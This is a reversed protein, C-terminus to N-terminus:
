LWNTDKDLQNDFTKLLKSVCSAKAFMKKTKLSHELHALLRLIVTSNSCPQFFENKGTINNQSLFRTIEQRPFVAGENSPNIYFSINQSSGCTMATIFIKPLNIGVIPLNMRRAILLYVLGMSVPNAKRKQLVDQLFCYQPEFYNDSNTIRFKLQKYVFHNLIKVKETDSYNNSLEENSFPLEISEFLKQADEFSQSFYQLRSLYWFGKLLDSDDKQWTKFNGSIDELELKSLISEIRSRMLTSVGESTLVQTLPPIIDLGQSFLKDRIIGYVQKDPDDLLRIAANLETKTM